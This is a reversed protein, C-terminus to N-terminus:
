NKTPGQAPKGGIATAPPMQESAPRPARVPVISLLYWKIGPDYLLRYSMISASRSDKAHGASLKILLQNIVDAAAEGNAGSILRTTTFLQIPARAVGIRFDRGEAVQKVIEELLAAATREKTPLYVSKRLVSSIQVWQGSQDRVGVPVVSPIAGARDWNYRGPFAAAAHQELFGLIVNDLSDAIHDGPISSSFVAAGGRPIEIRVGPNAARQRVSQVRETVDVKDGAFQIPVDEYNIAIGSREQVANIAALLPRPDEVAAQFNMQAGAVGVAGLFVLIHAAINVTCCTAPSRKM